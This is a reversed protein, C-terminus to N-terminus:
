EKQVLACIQAPHLRADDGSVIEGILQLVALVAGSVSIMGHEVTRSVLLLIGWFHSTKWRSCLTV